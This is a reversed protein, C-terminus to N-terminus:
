SRAQETRRQKIEDALQAPSDTDPTDTEPTREPVPQQDMRQQYIREYEEVQGIEHWSMNARVWSPPVKYFRAVECIRLDELDRIYKTEEIEDWQCVRQALGDLPSTM